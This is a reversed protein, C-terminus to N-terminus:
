TTPKPPASTCRFASTTSCRSSTKSRESETVSEPLHDNVEGYTLFGQEKGRAILAALQSNRKEQDIPEGDGAEIDTKNLNQPDQPTSSM